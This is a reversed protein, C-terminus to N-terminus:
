QEKCSKIYVFIEDKVFIDSNMKWGRKKSVVRNECLLKKGENFSEILSDFESKQLYCDLYGLFFVVGTLLYYIMSIKFLSKLKEDSMNKLDVKQM